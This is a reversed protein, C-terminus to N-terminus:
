KYITKKKDPKRFTRLHKVAVNAVLIIVLLCVAAATWGFGAVLGWIRRESRLFLLFAATGIGGSGLLLPVATSFFAAYGGGRRESSPRTSM